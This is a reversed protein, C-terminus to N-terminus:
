EEVVSDPQAANTNIKPLLLQMQVREDGAGDGAEVEGGLIDYSISPSSIVNSGQTLRANGVLELKNDEPFYIIKEAAASTDNARGKSPSAAQTFRAPNGSTTILQVRDQALNVLLIEGTIAVSDMKAEVDGTYTISNNTKDFEASAGEIVIEGADNATATNGMSPYALLMFATLVALLRQRNTYSFLSVPMFKRDVM